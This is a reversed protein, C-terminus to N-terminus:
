NFTPDSHKAVSAFFLRAGEATNEENLAGDRIGKEIMKQVRLSGVLRGLEIGSHKLIMHLHLAQRSEGRHKEGACMFCEVGNIIDGPGACPADLPALVSDEAM